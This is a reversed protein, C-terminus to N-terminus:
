SVKLRNFFIKNTEQVGSVTGRDHLSIGFNNEMPISMDMSHNLDIKIIKAHATLM